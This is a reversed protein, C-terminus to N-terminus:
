YRGRGYPHFRGRSGFRGGRRGDGDQGGRGGGMPGGQEEPGRGRGRGAGRGGGYGRGAWSSSSGGDDRGYPGARGYGERDGSGRWSYDSGPTYARFQQGWSPTQMGGPGSSNPTSGPTGSGVGARQQGDAGGAATGTLEQLRATIHASSLLKESMWNSGNYYHLQPLFPTNPKVWGTRYHWFTDQWHKKPQSPMCIYRTLVAAYESMDLVASDPWPNGEEDNAVAIAKTHQRAKDAYTESLALCLDYKQLEQGKYQAPDLSPDSPWFRVYSGTFNDANAIDAVGHEFVAQVVKCQILMYRFYMVLLEDIDKQAQKDTLGTKNGLKQFVMRRAAEVSHGRTEPMASHPHSYLMYMVATLPLLESDPFKGSLHNSLWREESLLVPLEATQLANSHNAINYWAVVRGAGLRQLHPKLGKFATCLWEIVAATLVVAKARSHMRKANIGFVIGSKILFTRLREPLLVLVEEMTDPGFYHRLAGPLSGLWAVRGQAVVQEFSEDKGNGVDEETLAPLDPYENPQSSPGEFLQNLLAPVAAFLAPLTTAGRHQQLATLVAQKARAPVPAPSTM